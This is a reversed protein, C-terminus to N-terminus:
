NYTHTFPNQRNSNPPVLQNHFELRFAFIFRVGSKSLSMRGLCRILIWLDTYSPYLM